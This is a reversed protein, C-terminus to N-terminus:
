QTLYCLDCGVFGVLWLHLLATKHWHDPPHLPVAPQYNNLVWHLTKVKLVWIGSSRLTCHLSYKQQQTKNRRRKNQKYQEKQKTAWKIINATHRSFNARQPVLSPNDERKDLRLSIRRFLHAWVHLVDVQAPINERWWQYTVQLQLPSMINLKATHNFTHLREPRTQDASPNSSM